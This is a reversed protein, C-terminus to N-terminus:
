ASLELVAIFFGDHTEDPFIQEVEILRFNPNKELFLNIVGDNETKNITCTSYVLRGGKKLYKSSSNLIKFQMKSLEIIDDASKKWKIDPKKHIVGLGSCPADVLVRDAIGLWEKRPVEGNWLYPEIIAINLREANKVILDLKHPFIDCAIIRGLNQMFEAIYLSKGGPAACVDIVTEGPKPDLAIVAQQSSLGQIEDGRYTIAGETNNAQLIELTKAFGYDSIWMDIMWQPHSFKINLESPTFSNYKVCVARLVGNVYKASAAHGYRKALNVCEDVASNDPIKDLFIIQYAGVRLINLIFISTKKLPINSCKQIIYDLFTRHTLVGYVINAALKKNSNEDQIRSFHKNLALNAYAGRETDVLIKLAIERSNM